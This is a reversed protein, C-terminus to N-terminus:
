EEKFVNSKINGNDGLNGLIKELDEDNMHDGELGALEKLYEPNNLDHETLEMPPLDDDDTDKLNLGKLLNNHDFKPAPKSLGLDINEDFKFEDNEDMQEDEPDEFLSPDLGLEAAKKAQNNSSSKSKKADKKDKDKNKDKSGFFGFPM